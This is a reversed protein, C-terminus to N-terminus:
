VIHLKSEVGQTSTRFIYTPTPQSLPGMMMVGLVGTQDLPISGM